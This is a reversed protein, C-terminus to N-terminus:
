SGTSISNDLVDLTQLPSEEFDPSWRWGAIDGLMRPTPQYSTESWKM